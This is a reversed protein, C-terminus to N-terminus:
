KIQKTVYYSAARADRTGVADDMLDAVASRPIRLVAVQPPDDFQDFLHADVREQWFSVGPRDTLFAKGQSYQDYGGSNFMGRGKRPTLGRELIKRANPESTVHYLYDDAADLGHFAESAPVREWRTAKKVVNAAKGAVSPVFPLAGLATMGFNLLTREDPKTAYMAADGLLGLADGVVPLPSALLGYAQLADAFQRPDPQRQPAHSMAGQTQRQQAARMQELLGAM